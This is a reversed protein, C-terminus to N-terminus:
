IWATVRNRVFIKKTTKNKRRINLAGHLFPYSIAFNYILIKCLLPEIQPEFFHYTKVYKEFIICSKKKSEM